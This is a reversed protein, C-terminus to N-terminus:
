TYRPNPIIKASFFSLPIGRAHAYGGHHSCTGPGRSSSLWGDACITEGDPMFMSYGHDLYFLAGQLLDWSPTGITANDLTTLNIGTYPNEAIHTDSVKLCKATVLPRLLANLANLREQSRPAGIYKSFLPADTVNLCSIKLRSYQVIALKRHEEEVRYQPWHQVIRGVLLLLLVLVVVRGKTWIRRKGKEGIPTSAFM